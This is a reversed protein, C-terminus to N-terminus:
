DLLSSPASSSEMRGRTRRSSQGSAGYNLASRLCSALSSASSAWSRGATGGRCSAAGPSTPSRGSSRM